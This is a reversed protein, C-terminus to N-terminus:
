IHQWVNLYILIIDVLNVGESNLNDTTYGYEYAIELSEQLSPDENSLYGIANGYFIIEVDFGGNDIIEDEIYVFADNFPIDQAEVYYLIDIDDCNKSILDLLFDEIKNQYKNFQEDTLDYSTLNM